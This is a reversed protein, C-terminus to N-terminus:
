VSEWENPTVLRRQITLPTYWYRRQKHTNASRAHGLTAYVKGTANEGRNNILRFEYAGDPERNSM